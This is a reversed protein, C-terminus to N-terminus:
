APNVNVRITGVREGALTMSATGVHAHTGTSIKKGTRVFDDMSPGALMRGHACALANVVGSPVSALSARQRPAVDLMSLGGSVM